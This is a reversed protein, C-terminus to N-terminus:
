SVDELVTLDVDRALTELRKPDIESTLLALSGTEAQSRWAFRWDGPAREAVPDAQLLNEPL